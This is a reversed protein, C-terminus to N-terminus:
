NAGEERGKWLKLLPNTILGVVLVGVTQWFMFFIAMIPFAIGKENDWVYRSLYYIRGIGIIFIVVNILVFILYYSRQVQALHKASFHVSIPLLSFVGLIILLTM